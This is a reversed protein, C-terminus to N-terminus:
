RPTSFRTSSMSRRWRGARWGPRCRPAASTLDDGGNYKAFNKIAKPPWKSFRKKTGFRVNCWTKVVGRPFGPFDYPDHEASVAFPIKHLAHLITLYSARIDIECVPEGDITMKLRDGRERVQYTDRGSSYFRGGKNWDFLLDDGLSFIRRFWRHTAGKITRKSVFENIEKVDQELRQAKATWAIPMSKEDGGGGRRLVLPHEPPTSVFHETVSEPTVGFSICTGILKSTARFRSAKGTTRSRDGPDWEVTRMYGIRHEILGAAKWGEVVPKFLRASVLQGTFSGNSLERYVWGKAEPHSQGAVLDAIFAGITGHLQDLKKGRRELKRKGAVVEWAMLQGALGTVLERANDTRARADLNARSAQRLAHGEDVEDDDNSTM